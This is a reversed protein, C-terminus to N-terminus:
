PTKATPGAGLTWTITARYDGAGANATRPLTLSAASVTGETAGAGQDTAATLIAAPEDALNGTGIEGTYNPGAASGEFTLSTATLPTRGAFEGLKATLQWGANSGRYDLVEIRKTNNGDYGENGPSVNQENLGLTLSGTMLDQVKGEEFSLNPVAKLSLQGPTIEFQAVSNAAATDSDDALVFAAEATTNLNESQSGPGAAQITLPAGGALLAAAISGLLWIVKRM